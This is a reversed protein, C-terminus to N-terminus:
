TCICINEMFIEEGIRSFYKSIKEMVREFCIRLSQESILITPIISIFSAHDNLERFLFTCGTEFNEFEVSILEIQNKIDILETENLSEISDYLAIIRKDHEEDDFCAEKETAIFFGDKDILYCALANTTKKFSKVIENLRNELESIQIM